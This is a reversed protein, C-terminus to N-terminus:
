AIVHFNHMQKAIQSKRQDNVLRFEQNTVEKQALNGIQQVRVKFTCKEKGILFRTSKKHINNIIYLIDSIIWMDWITSVNPSTRIPMTLAHLYNHFEVLEKTEHKDTNAKVRCFICRKRSSLWDFGEILNHAVLKRFGM